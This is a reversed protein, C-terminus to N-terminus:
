RTPVIVYYKMKEFHIFSTYTIKFKNSEPLFKINGLRYWWTKLNM